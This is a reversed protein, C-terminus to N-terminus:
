AIESPRVRAAGQAGLIDARFRHHQSPHVPDAIQAADGKEVNAIAGADRLDDDALVLCQHRDGLAQARLKDDADGAQHLAAGFVRDVRLERGALDLDQRPLDHQEVLGLCRRELNGLVPGDGFVDAQAVAIEIQAPRPQLVIEPQPV